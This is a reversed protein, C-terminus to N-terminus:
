LSQEVLEAVVVAGLVLIKKYSGFKLSNSEDFATLSNREFYM